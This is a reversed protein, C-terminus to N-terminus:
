PKEIPKLLVRIEFLEYNESGWTETLDIRIKRTSYPKNLKHVAMRKINSSIGVTKEGNEDNDISITYGRIKPEPPM